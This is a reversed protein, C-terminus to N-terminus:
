FSKTYTYMIAKQIRINNTSTVTVATAFTLQTGTMRYKSKTIHYLM